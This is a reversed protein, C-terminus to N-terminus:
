SRGGPWSLRAKMLYVPSAPDAGPDLDHNDIGLWRSTGEQSEAHLCTLQPRHM